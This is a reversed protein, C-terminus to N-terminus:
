LDGPSDAKSANGVAAKKAAPRYLRKGADSTLKANQEANFRAVDSATLDRAPLGDEGGFFEYWGDAGPNWTGHWTYVIEDSM